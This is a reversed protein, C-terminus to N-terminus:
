RKVASFMGSQKTIEIAGKAGLEQQLFDELCGRTELDLEVLQYSNIYHILPDVKTVLLRDPYRVLKIDKFLLNLLATGNELDFARTGTGWRGQDKQPVFRAEWAYIEELHHSGNTAAYLCGLPKIVRHIEQLATEVSPLHYLMHNAIVLDFLDNQFPLQSVDATTFVFRGCDPLAQKAESLMGPSLDTLYIRCGVPLDSRNEQWLYGPGCGVELIWANEPIQLHSFVWEQWGTPNTSFQDHLAARAELRRSDRYQRNRLQYEQTRRSSTM